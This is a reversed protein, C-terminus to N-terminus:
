PPSRGERLAQVLIRPLSRSLNMNLQRLTWDGRITGFVLDQM